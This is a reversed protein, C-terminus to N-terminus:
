DREPQSLSSNLMQEQEVLITDQSDDDGGCPIRGTEVCLQIIIIATGRNEQILVAGPVSM